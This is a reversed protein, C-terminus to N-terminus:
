GRAQHFNSRKTSIARIDIRETLVLEKDFGLAVTNEAIARVAAVDACGGQLEFAFPQAFCAKFGAYM